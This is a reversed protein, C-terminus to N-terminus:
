STCLSLYKGQRVDDGGPQLLFLVLFVLINALLCLLIIKSRRSYSM